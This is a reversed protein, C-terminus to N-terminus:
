LMIKIHAKVRLTKVWEGFKKDMAQRQLFARIQPAAEEYSRPQGGAKKAVLQMFQFGQPTEIPAVEGPKLRELLQTLQPNLDGTSIFGLDRGKAGFKAALAEFSGGKQGEKLLEEAKKKVDEKQAATAGPPFPLEIVRLHVRQGTQTKPFETDYFRRIEAETVPTIKSGVAVALLRDQIIQDSIQQKFEKLTIGAKALGQELAEQTQLNNRKKFEEVAQELDKDSVTMGRRKAEAKALKQDILSELVERQFAKKDKPQPSMGTKAQFAKALQEVETLSIVEDNVIAVVRDVIEGVAPAALCLLGTLFLAV